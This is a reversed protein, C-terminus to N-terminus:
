KDNIKSLVLRISFYDIDMLYDKITKLKRTKLLNVAETIRKQTDPKVYTEIPFTPDLLAIEVIHDEITSRKLKRVNAIEEVGKGSKLFKYTEWSSSTLTWPSKRDDLLSSLIPFEGKEHWITKIMFHLCSRFALLYYIEDVAIQYAIQTATYGPKQYGTFRAVIYDPNERNQECIEFIAVLENYVQLSLQKKNYDLRKEGLWRKMWNQIPYDRVVPIFKTENYAWNTLIQVLLTLRQWFSREIQHFQWGNLHAPLPFDSMLKSLLKKGSDTLAVTKNSVMISGNKELRKVTDLFSDADMEPYVAYLHQLSYWTADQLTQTSKKGTLLNQVAKISREGKFQYVCHLILACYYNV